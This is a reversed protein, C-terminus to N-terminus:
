ACNFAEKYRAKNIRRTLRRERAGLLLDYLMFKLINKRVRIRRYTKLTYTDTFIGHEISEIDYDGGSLLKHLEKEKSTNKTWYAKQITKHRPKVAM